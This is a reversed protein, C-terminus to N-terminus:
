SIKERIQFGSFIEELNCFHGFNVGSDGLGKYFRPLVHYESRFTVMRPGSIALVRIFCQYFM